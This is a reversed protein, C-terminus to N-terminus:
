KGALLVIVSILGAGLGIISLVVFYWLYKRIAHIDDKLQTLDQATTHQPKTPKDITKEKQKKATQETPEKQTIKYEFSKDYSGNPKIYKDIFWAEYQNGNKGQLQEIHKAGDIETETMQFNCKWCQMVKGMESVETNGCRGCYYVVQKM